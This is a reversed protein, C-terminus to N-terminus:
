EAATFRVCVPSVVELESGAPTLKGTRADIRFVVVNHSNQNAAFLYGGTPDIQFNRPVKGGTPVYEIPTLTGKARDISFVAISDHGRNSGYLFRGNPHVRVEACDSQGKFDPPLTSITQLTELAGRKADWSFAQVSNGMETIVYAHRGDPHFAFHRPGAGPATSAFPPDNPALTGKAADFRYILVKDLGLDPALAFRNDPSVNISHAHPGSQRRPNAGTGSHQIFSSAEALRGDEGIPLVAVSGTNYNAVLVYKGTNDVTVFCPGGGKSSVSNLFTLKGTKRDMSFASVAGGKQGRSGSVESVAYVFPRKPHIALFSPNVTEAALGLPALKGSGPNFRWAYIGQSGRGTYTGVYVLYEGKSAASVGGACALLAASAACLCWIQNM